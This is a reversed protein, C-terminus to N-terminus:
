LELDHPEAGTVVGAGKAIADAIHDDLKAKAAKNILPGLVTGEKFGDGVKMAAVAVGLKEVFADYIGAQVYIRNACVCTQGNNRFKSILAKCPQMWIPMM